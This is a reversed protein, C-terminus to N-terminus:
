FLKIFNHFKLNQKFYTIFKPVNYLIYYVGYYPSETSYAIPISFLYMCTHVCTNM